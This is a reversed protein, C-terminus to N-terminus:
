RHQTAPSGIHCAVSPLKRIPKGYLGTYWRKLWETDKVHMINHHLLCDSIQSFKPQLDALVFSKGISFINANFALM